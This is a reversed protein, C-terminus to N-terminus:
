KHFLTSHSVLDVYIIIEGIYKGQINITNIRCQLCSIHEEAIYMMKTTTYLCYSDHRPDSYDSIRYCQFPAMYMM